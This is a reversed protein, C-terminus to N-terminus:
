ELWSSEGTSLRMSRVPRSAWPMMLCTSFSNTFYTKLKSNQTKLLRSFPLGQRGQFPLHRRRKRRHRLPKGVGGRWEREPM